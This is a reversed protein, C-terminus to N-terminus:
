LLSEWERKNRERVKSKKIREREEKERSPHDPFYNISKKRENRKREQARSDPRKKM